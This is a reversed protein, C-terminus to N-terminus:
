DEQYYSRAKVRTIKVTTGLVARVNDLFERLQRGLSVTNPDYFAFVRSWTKGPEPRQIRGISQQVNAIKVLQPDLSTLVLTNLTPKDLGKTVMKQAAFTTRYDNLQRLRNGGKRPVGSHLIGASGQGGHGNALHIIQETRNCIVLSYGGNGEIKQTYFNILDNRKQSRSMKTMTAPVSVMRRNRMERAIRDPTPTGILSLRKALKKREVPDMKELDAFTYRKIVKRRKNRQGPVPEWSKVLYTDFASKIQTDVLVIEPIMDQEVDEFCADHELHIRFIRDQKDERYPTATLGVREGSLLPVSRSFLPSGMVHIEDIGVLGYYNRFDDPWERRQQMLTQAMMVACPLGEWRFTPGQVRGIMKEPIGTFKLIYKTWQDALENSDVIIAFPVRRTLALKLFIISKGKGCGLVLLRGRTPGPREVISEFAPGQDYPQHKNPGLQITDEPWDFGSRDVFPPYVVLGQRYWSMNYARPVYIAGPDSDLEVYQKIFAKEKDFETNKGGYQKAAFYAPNPITLDHKVQDVDVRSRPVRLWAGFRILPKMLPM